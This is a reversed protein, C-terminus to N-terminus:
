RIMLARLQMVFLPRTAAFPANMLVASVAYSVVVAIAAGIMGLAPILMSNLLVSAIAGAFAQYVGFRLQGSNIFWPGAAVGIAVFVGAWCQIALVPAAEAFAAGFLLHIILPAGLTFAAAPVISLLVMLRMLRQLERMYDQPSSHYLQTLSPAAGAVIATPIFYWLETIRVAASYIGLQEDGLYHQVMMQDIRMYVGIALMRLMLPASAHLLFRAEGRDFRSPLIPIAQRRAALVTLVAFCAIEASYLVAYVVVGQDLLVAGLRALAFAVSNMMRLTSLVGVRNLSQFRSEVVDFAQPLFSFGYGLVVLIALPDDGRLAWAVAALAIVALVALVLRVVLATALVADANRKGGAFERVVIEPMGLTAIPTLLMILVQGYSLLGFGSPGLQRAILIGVFFNLALRLLRDSVLWSANVLTRRLVSM